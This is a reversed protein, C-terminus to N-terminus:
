ASASTAGASPVTEGDFYPADQVGLHFLQTFVTDDDGTVIAKVIACGGSGATCEVSATRANKTVDGLIIASPNDVRFVISDITAGAALAGNVDVALAFVDGRQRQSRHVRNRQFRSVYATNVRM